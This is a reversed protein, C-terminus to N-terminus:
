RLPKIILSSVSSHSTYLVLFRFCNPLVDDSFSILKSAAGFFLRRKLQPSTLREKSIM